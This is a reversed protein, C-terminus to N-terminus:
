DRGIVLQEATGTECITLPWISLPFLKQNQSHSGQFPLGTHLFKLLM